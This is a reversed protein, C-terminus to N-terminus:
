RVIPDGVAAMILFPGLLQALYPELGQLAESWDRFVGFGM